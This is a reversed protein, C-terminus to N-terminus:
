AALRFFGFFGRLRSRFLDSVLRAWTLVSSEGSDSVGHPGPCPGVFHPRIPRAQETKPHIQTKPTFNISRCREQQTSERLSNGIEPPRVGGTVRAESAGAAEGLHLNWANQNPLHVHFMMFGELPHQYLQKKSSSIAIWLFGPSHSPSLLPKNM